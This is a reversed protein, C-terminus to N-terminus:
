CAPITSVKPESTTVEVLTREQVANFCTALSEACNSNRNFAQV